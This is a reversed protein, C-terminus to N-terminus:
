VTNSGDRTSLFLQAARRVKERQDPPRDKLREELWEELLEAAERQWQTREIPKEREALEAQLERARKSTRPSEGAALLDRYEASLEATTLDRASDLGFAGALIQDSRWGTFDQQIVTSDITTGVRRLTIVEGAEADTVVLPSHTTAILQMGAFHDRLLPLIRRQWDPHLHVDLEDVLVLVSGNWPEPAKPYVDFLRQLLVGVWGLVATIGRSLLDLSITGDTSELQIAWTQRDVGSYEFDVGPTLARVIKFFRDLVARDSEEGRLETNVIWQKLTDLRADPADALLPILDDPGPGETTQTTPGRPNGASVGRMPPFGVALWMSAQIPTFSESRLRVRPGERSLTTRFTSGDVSLLVEGTSQGSKLLREALRDTVPSEGALALAIARLVASKGCGNDGLLITRGGTFRLNLEAFPGVNILRLSEIKGAARVETHEQEPQDGVRERLDTVFAATAAAPEDPDFPLLRVGFRQLREQQLEFDPQWPVLAWHPRDGASRVESSVLFQEVGRLSTGLFLVSRTTLVSAVFRAYDRNDYLESRYDDGGVLIHGREIGGYAELVFRRNSRLLDSAAGSSWPALLQAGHGLNANIVGYWDDTIVGRFPLRALMDLTPTHMRARPGVAAALSNRIGDEGVRNRLVDAVLEVEVQDLQELLDEEGADRMVIRLADAYLPYGVEKALGAGAFLVLRGDVLEEALKDPAVPAALAPRTEDRQRTEDRKPPDIAALLADRKAREEALEAELQSQRDRQEDLVRHRRRTEFLTYGAAAFGVAAAVIALVESPTM